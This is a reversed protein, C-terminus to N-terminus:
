SIRPAGSKELLLNIHNKIKELAENSHAEARISLVNQTNSARVIWWGEENHCRLGDINISEWADDNAAHQILKEVIKFKESEEVELRIEPTSITKPFDKTLQALTKGEEVLIALLRVACYLADDYGFFRDAFFIHGSLEGSLVAKTELMKNKINSHGTKWIVPHGGAKEIADFTTNSCKVDGIITAGSHTKLINQAYLTILSDPWIITGENDIVGIRDGDGDFAFGIDCKKEKVVTILDQLNKEVTPDPHHNPFTGDIVDYLFIHQAHIHDTLDHIVTAAAGNGCDWAIKLPTKIPPLDKLLRNIYDSKIDKETLTGKIKAPTFNKKAITGIEQIDDGFFARKNLTFKFGNYAGPNHSGTVMITADIGELAYGAYYTLPSPCMGLNVVDLGADCIGQALHSVLSPSSLRGDYGIAITQGKKESVIQAFAVGIAYADQDHLTEDIIGRIDYERLISPHFDHM